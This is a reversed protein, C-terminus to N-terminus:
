ILLPFAGIPYPQTHRPFVSAHLLVLCQSVLALQARTIWLHLLPILDIHGCTTASDGASVKLSCPDQSCTTDHPCAKQCPDCPHLVVGSACLPASLVLTWLATLLLLIRTM